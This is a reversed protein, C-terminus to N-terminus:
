QKGKMFPCQSIDGSSNVKSHDFTSEIEPHTTQPEKKSFLNKLTQM